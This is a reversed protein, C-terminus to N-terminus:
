GSERLYRQNGGKFNGDVAMGRERQSGIGVKWAANQTSDWREGGRCFGMAMIGIGIMMTRFLTKRIM